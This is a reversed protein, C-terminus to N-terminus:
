ASQRRMAQLQERGKRKIEEIDLPEGGTADLKAIGAEISAKLEDFKEQRSRMEALATRVVEDPTPFTGASDLDAIFPVFEFPVLVNM